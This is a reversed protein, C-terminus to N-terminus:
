LQNLFIHRIDGLSVLTGGLYAIHEDDLGSKEQDKVMRSLFCEPADTKQMHRKSDRMLDFWLAQHEKRIDRAWKRWPCLFDPLYKLFPFIDVPPTAGIETIQTLQDQVHYLAKVRPSDFSAARLGFGSALIVATSYLRIHDYWDEPTTLIQHLTQAAEANQIPLVEDVAKM